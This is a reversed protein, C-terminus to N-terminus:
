EMVRASLLFKALVPFIVLLPFQPLTLVLHIPVDRLNNPCVEWPVQTSWRRVPNIYLLHVMLSVAFKEKLKNYRYLLNHLSFLHYQFLHIDVHTAEWSTLPLWRKVPHIYLLHVMFSAVFKEELLQHVEQAPTGHVGDVGGDGASHSGLDNNLGTMGASRTAPPADRQVDRRADRQVDRSRSRSRSGRPAERTARSWGVGADPFPGFPNTSGPPCGTLERLSAEIERDFTQVVLHRYESMWAVVRSRLTGFPPVHGLEQLLGEEAATLQMLTADDVDEDSGDGDDADGARDAGDDRDARGPPPEHSARAGSTTDAAGADRVEGPQQQVGRQSRARMIMARARARATDLAIAATNTNAAIMMGPPPLYPPDGVDKAELWVDQMLRQVIKLHFSGLVKQFGAFGVCLRGRMGVDEPQKWGQATVSVELYALFERLDDVVGADWGLELLEDREDATLQFPVDPEVPEEPNTDTENPGPVDRDEDHEGDEGPRNPPPDGCGTARAQMLVTTDGDDEATEAGTRTTTTSTLSPSSMPTTTPKWGLSTTTTSSTCTSQMGTSLAAVFSQLDPLGDGSWDLNTEVGDADGDRCRRRAM